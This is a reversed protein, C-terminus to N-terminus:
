ILSAATCILMCEFFHRRVEALVQEALKASGKLIYEKFRYWMSTCLM